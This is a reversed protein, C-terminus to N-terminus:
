QRIHEERVGYELETRVIAPRRLTQGENPGRPLVCRLLEADLDPNIALIIRSGLLQLVLARSGFDFAGPDLEGVPLRIPQLTPAM